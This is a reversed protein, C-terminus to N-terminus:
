CAEWEEDPPTIVSLPAYAVVLQREEGNEFRVTIRRSSGYGQVGNVCGRGLLEHYVWAGPHLGDDDESTDHHYEPEDNWTTSSSTASRAPKRDFEISAGELDALFSSPLRPEREQFRRRWSSHTLILEEMARTVGVYLLRKEEDIGEIEGHRSHPILTEEVGTIIVKRFELGKAAHLTMLSVKDRSSDDSEVDSVLAIRELFITLADPPDSTIEDPAQQLAQGLIEETEAAAAVLEHLNREREQWSEPESKELHALYGSAEIAAEVLDALGGTLRDELKELVERLHEIGKKAKGRIGDTCDGRRLHEGMTRGQSLAEDQFKELSVKGIGRAPTNVIRQLAVDDRSSRAARLYALIDKIEKREYFSMGGVVAYRMRRRVFEEEIVRSLSNVRYLIAIEDSTVGESIWEEVHDVIRRSEAREDHLQQVRVSNGAANETFLERHGFESGALRSAVELIQPTSRYNQELTVVDHNPFDEKFRLFNDPSAGRWSYISQDPDGTVCLNKHEKALLRAILYQPRNTDQFEDIMVYQFRHQLRELVDPHETLLRVVLLLLDDFDAADQEELLEQYRAYIKALERDKFTAAQDRAQEPSVMQNKWQSITSQTARPPFATRDLKLEKMVDTVVQKQDASDYISFQSSYPELRHAHRRLLRACFSHFTRLVPRDEELGLAASGFFGHGSFSDLEPISLLNLTRRLMEEAAKNTFTIALISGPENGANVLSAIRHTMVRTKGSGPGAVVVLPGQHQEVAQEQAPNLGSSILHPKM